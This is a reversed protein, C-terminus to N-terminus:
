AKRSEQLEQGLKYLANRSAGTLKAAIRAAQTLSLDELLVELMTRAEDPLADRAAPERGHVLIVFEGKRQEPDSAVWATLEALGALRITEFRKTLERAVVAQREGGLVECMDTLCASIRHSSEYIIITRQEAALEALRKRRAPKRAPLFGEFVFRDPPLGSVSLAAIAASVGPIPTVPIGAERAARVLRFGPDSVLPTGADSILAIHEGKQLQQLIRPTVARENHEHMAVTRTAIGFHKLLVASHRTDEAVIRDVEGLIRVARQTMDELNGIPTAVIFLTGNKSSTGPM